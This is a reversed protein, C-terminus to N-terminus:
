GNIIWKHDGEDSIGYSKPEVEFLIEDISKVPMIGMVANTLFIQDASLLTELDYCGEYIMLQQQQMSAIVRQRMIGNLLGCDCHPTHWQDDKLFFINSASTETIELRENLFLVEQYGNEIVKQKELWNEAYNLTKHRQIISTSNRRVNSVALQFGDVYDSQKYNFDRFIIFWNSLPGNKILTLKLVLNPVCERAGGIAAAQSEIFSKLKALDEFAQPVSIKLIMASEIMRQIHQDFDEILGERLIMTEFLGLGYQLGESLNLHGVGKLNNFKIYDKM